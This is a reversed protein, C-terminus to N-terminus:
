YDEDYDEEYEYEYENEQRKQKKRAKKFRKRQAKWYAKERKSHKGKGAWPPRNGQQGRRGKKWSKRHGYRKNRDQYDPYYERERDIQEQTTPQQSVEELIKKTGNSDPHQPKAKLTMEILTGVGVNKQRKLGLSQDVPVFIRARIRTGLGEEIALVADTTASGPGLVQAMGIFSKEGVTLVPVVKSPLRSPHKTVKNLLGDIEESLLKAATVAAIGRLAESGKKGGLPYTGIKAWLSSDVAAGVSVGPVRHIELPNASSSPILHAFRVEGGKIQGSIEFVVKVSKVASQSGVIQYAGVYTKRGISFGPVVRTSAKYSIGKQLSYQELAKYASGAQSRILRPIAFNSISSFFDQAVLPYSSFIGLLFVTSAITKFDRKFLRCM